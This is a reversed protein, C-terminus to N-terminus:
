TTMHAGIPPLKPFLSYLRKQLPQCAPDDSVSSGAAEAAYLKQLLLTATAFSRGTRSRGAATTGAVYPHCSDASSQEIPYFVSSCHFAFLPQQGQVGLAVCLELAGLAPHWERGQWSSVALAAAADALGEHVQLWRARDQSTVM